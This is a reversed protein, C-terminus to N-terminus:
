TLDTFDFKTTGSGSSYKKIMVGVGVFAGFKTELNQSFSEAHGALIQM